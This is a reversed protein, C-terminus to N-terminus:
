SDKEYGEVIREKKRLLPLGSRSAEFLGVRSSSLGRLSECHKKQGCGGQIHPAYHTCCKCICSQVIEEGNRSIPLHQVFYNRISTIDGESM